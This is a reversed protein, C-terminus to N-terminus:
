KVNGKEYMSKKNKSMKMKTDKSHIKNKHSESMKLITEKSHKRGYFPNNIDKIKTEEIKFKLGKNWPTQGKHSEGLRRKDEESWKKGLRGYTAGGDGGDTLNYGINNTNYFRIWYKERQQLDCKLPQELIKVIFNESGYKTIAKSLITKGHLYKIHHYIRKELNNTYGIYSKNNITNIIQYIYGFCDM